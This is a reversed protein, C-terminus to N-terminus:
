LTENGDYLSLFERVGKLSSIDGKHVGEFLNNVLEEIQPLDKETQELQEKAGKVDHLTLTVYREIMDCIPKVYGEFPVIFRRKAPDSEIAQLTLAIRDGIRLLTAYTDNSIHDNFELRGTLVQIRNNHEYSKEFAQKEQLKLRIKRKVRPLVANAGIIGVFGGGALILGFLGLRFRVDIILFLLLYGVALWNITKQSM